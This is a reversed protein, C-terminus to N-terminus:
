EISLVRYGAKEIVSELVSNPINATVVAQKKALNVEAKVGPLAELVEKVRAACHECMMGELLIIKKMQKDEKHNKESPDFWRLRLANLVVCLSSLSMAAAAFMPNLQWGLWPYFVGAALPIGLVNYIFAWFLNEKINWIVARSLNLASAVDVLENKILVIDATELAVETGSGVAIGVDARALAPADNVGDGVMAVKKGDAQLRRVQAEKEQPLIQAIIHVIGAQRGITEATAQQDGTLLIVELGQKQLVHVAQAAGPKLADALAVFGQYKGDIAVYLITKGQEALKNEPSFKIQYSQLLAANGILVSQGKYQACIGAGPKLEFNEVQESPIKQRQAFRMMARALPHSSKNEVAAVAHWFIKEDTAPRLFVDTVEPQGQTLTGTKDLLIVQVQRATELVEASKFLLGHRAGTGTGVMIATPTALGLACPCSIVLVAVASQLAFGIDAGCLLWVLLTVLSIIIVVPVFIGSIKDALRGIPAKSVAAEEVLKILQALLTQSGAHTVEFEFYGDINFTGARVLDGEKKDVPLSEGTLSAENVAGYGKCIRGDAAIAMGAKVVLLDGVGIEEVPIEKAKGKEIRLAKKPTLKLLSELADTTKRKARSELYKGLTILTLIMVASEFYFVREGFLQIISYLVAAASGLAILSNMNPSGRKLSVFGSRFIERNVWLVPLMLFFQVWGSLDASLVPLGAMGGMSLYLLPILFGVSIWFRKELCKEETQTNSYAEAAALSAKYGAAEIAAIIQGASLIKEDYQVMLRNTFLNVDARLVGQLARAAKEVRAACAVCNMGSIAFVQKM